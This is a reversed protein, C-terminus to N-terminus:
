NIMCPKVRWIENAYEDITRDSSFRGSNAINVASSKLWDFRQEYRRMAEEHAESYALFDKMIFFEDNSHLIYDYLSRFDGYRGDVLQNM